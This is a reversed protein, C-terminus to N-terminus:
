QWFLECRIESDNDGLSVSHLSGLIATTSSEGSGQQPAAGARDTKAVSDAKAKKAKVKAAKSM